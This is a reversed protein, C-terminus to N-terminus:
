RASSRDEGYRRRADLFGEATLRRHEELLAAVEAAAEPDEQRLAAVCADRAQHPLDLVRDLHGSVRLWRRSDMASM